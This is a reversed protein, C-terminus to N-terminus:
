AAKADDDRASMAADLSVCAGASLLEAVEDAGLPPAFHFGQGARCGLRRLETTEAATEMGEAVLSVNLAQALEVIAQM